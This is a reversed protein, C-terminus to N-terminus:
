GSEDGVRDPWGGADKTNQFRPSLKRMASLFEQLSMAGLCTYEDATM